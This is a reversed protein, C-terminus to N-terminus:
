YVTSGLYPGGPSAMWEACTRVVQGGDDDRMSLSADDALRTARPQDDPDIEDDNM